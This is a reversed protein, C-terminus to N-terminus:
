SPVSSPPSGGDNGKFVRLFAAVESPSHGLMMRAVVEYDEKSYEANVAHDIHDAIYEEGDVEGTKVLNGAGSPNPVEAMDIGLAECIVHIPKKLVVALRVARPLSPISEGKEWADYSSATVGVSRYVDSKTLNEAVRLDKLTIQGYNRSSEM